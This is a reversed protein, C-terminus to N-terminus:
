FGLAARLQPTLHEPGIAKEALVEDNEPYPYYTEPSVRYLRMCQLRNANISNPKFHRSEFKYIDEKIIVNPPYGSGPQTIAKDANTAFKVLNAASFAQFKSAPIVYGNNSGLPLSPVGCVKALGPTMGGWSYWVPGYALDIFGDPIIESWIKTPFIAALEPSLKEATLSNDAIKATTISNDIFRDNAIWNDVILTQLLYAPLNQNNISGLQVNRAVITRDELNNATLKKWIPADNVRSVLTQNNETPSVAKIVQDVSASLVSSPNSRILKSLTLSNNAFADNGISTWKITGDGVNQLFKNADAPNLSGAIRGENLNNLIPLIKSNLYNAIMNFQLDISNAKIEPSTAFYNTIRKFPNIAM